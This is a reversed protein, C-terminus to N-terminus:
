TLDRGAARAVRRVVRWGPQALQKLLPIVPSGGGAALAVLEAGTMAPTPQLRPVALRREGPRHLRRGVEAHLRTVNSETLYHMIDLDHTALDVVV